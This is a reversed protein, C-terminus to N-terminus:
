RVETWFCEVIEASPLTEDTRWHMLRLGSGNFAEDTEQRHMDTSMVFMCRGRRNWSRSVFAAISNLDFGPYLIESGVVSDFTRGHVNALRGALVEPSVHNLRANADAAAAVDLDCDIMTVRYVDAVSIGALGLGCGVDCVSDGMRKDQMWRALVISCPWLKEGQGKSKVPCEAITYSGFGVQIHGDISYPARVSM